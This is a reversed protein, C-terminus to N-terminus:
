SDVRVHHRGPRGERKPSNAWVCNCKARELSFLPGRLRTGLSSQSYSVIWNERALDSGRSLQWLFGFKGPTTM